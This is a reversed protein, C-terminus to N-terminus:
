AYSHLGVLFFNVGIWNFMMVAFGVIALAATLPAKNRPAAVRVHLIVLYVIWTVLAFTEKPDWGWPRGWSHDAWIAGCIIGAGLLWFALQLIVVNAADLGALMSRREGTLYAVADADAGGSMAGGGAGALAPSGANAEAPAIWHWLRSLWYVSGLVFSASILAYSWIVINVHIYLWYDNLVGAVKGVSNGIDRGFV